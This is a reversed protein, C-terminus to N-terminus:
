GDEIKKCWIKWFPFVVTENVSTWEGIWNFGSESIESFTLRSFGDTGNPAKSPMRLVIKNGKRNGIWTPQTRPASLSSFFTVLWRSSDANYQRISSTYTSDEKWTEDQIAFGNLIYKFQWTLRITDRWEGKPNRQISKCECTGILEEFDRLEDPANPNYKGYKSEIQGFLSMPAIMFIFLTTKM